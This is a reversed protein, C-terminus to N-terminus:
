NEVGIQWVKDKAKILLTDTEDPTILKNKILRGDATTQSTTEKM